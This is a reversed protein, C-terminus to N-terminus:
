DEFEHLAFQLASAFVSDLGADEQMCHIYKARHGFFLEPSLLVLLQVLCLPLAYLVLFPKGQELASQLGIVLSSDVDL